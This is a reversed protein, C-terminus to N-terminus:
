GRSQPRKIFRCIKRIRGTTAEDGWFCERLYTIMELKERISARAWYRRDERDLSEQDTFRVDRRDLRAFKDNWENMFDCTKCARM